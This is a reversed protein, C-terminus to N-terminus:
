FNIFDCRIKTNFASCTKFPFIRNNSTNTTFFIWIIRFETLITIPREIRLSSNFGSYNTKGKNYAILLEEDSVYRVGATRNVAEYNRNYQNSGTGCIPGNGIAFCNDLVIQAYARGLVM